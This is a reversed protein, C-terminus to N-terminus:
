HIHTGGNVDVESGTLYISLDSALFLCAGAIDTPKGLRGLPVAARLEVLRQESIRGAVLDTEIFSPCIANARIGAPGFERAIAKTLGLVGAKAAAYHAGGFFGGGRQGAASSINIISGKGKEQMAPICAQCMNFTGRLNVNLVLDYNAQTIDLFKDPQTVGANNVLVDIGGLDRRIREAVSKCQDLDTVDTRYGKHGSGPLGDATRQSDAENLDLIAIRAGHEAFLSAAARGLGRETAAGTVVCVLDKLM